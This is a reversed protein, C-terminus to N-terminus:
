PEIPDYAVRYGPGAWTYNRYRHEGKHWPRLDCHWHTYGGAGKEPTVRCTFPIYPEVANRLAQIYLWRRIGFWEAKVWGDWILWRAFLRIEDRGNLGTRYIQGNSDPHPWHGIIITHGDDQGDFIQWEGDNSERVQTYDRTKVLTGDTDKRFWLDRVRPMGWDGSDYRGILIMLPHGWDYYRWRRATLDHLRHLLGGTREGTTWGRKYMWRRIKNRMSM